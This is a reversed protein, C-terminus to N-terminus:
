LTFGPFFFFFFFDSRGFVLDEVSGVRDDVETVRSGLLRARM